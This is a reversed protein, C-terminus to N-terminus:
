TTQGVPSLWGAPKLRRTTSVSSLSLFSGALDAQGAMIRLDDMTVKRREPQLEALGYEVPHIVYRINRLRCADVTKLMTDMANPWRRFVSVQLFDAPFRDIEHPETVRYALAIVTSGKAQTTGPSADRM